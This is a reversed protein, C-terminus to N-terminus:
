KKSSKIPKEKKMKMLSAPIVEEKKGVLDEHGDERMKKEWAALEKEFRVKEKIYMDQYKDKEQQPLTSWAQKKEAFIDRLHKGEQKCLDTLYLAYATLPRKPKNHERYLKKLKRREKKSKQEKTAKKLADRMDPTLSENYKLLKTDYSESEVKWEAAFKEKISDHLKNWDEACKRVIDKAKLDPNERTVVPRHEALYRLYATLPRKPKEPINLKDLLDKTNQKLGAVAVQNVNIVRNIFLPNNLTNFAKFFLGPCSM